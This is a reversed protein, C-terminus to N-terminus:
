FFWAFKKEHQCQKITCATMHVCFDYNYNHMLINRAILTSTCDLSRRMFAVGKYLKLGIQELNTLGLHVFDVGARPWGHSTQFDIMHYLIAAM